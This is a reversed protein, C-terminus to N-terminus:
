PEFQISDLVAQLEAREADTAAIPVRTTFVQRRGDVDLIHASAREYPFLVLNDDSPEAYWIQLAQGEVNCPRLDFGDPVSLDVRVGDHGGISTPVPDDAVVVEQRDLAEALDDVGAGVVMQGSGSGACAEKWVHDPLFPNLVIDTGDAISTGFSHGNRIWDEPFTLTYSAAASTSSPLRYTGAAIPGDGEPLEPISSPAAATPAPTPATTAPAQTPASGGCAAAGALVALSALTPIRHARRTAVRTTTM